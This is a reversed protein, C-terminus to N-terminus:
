HGSSAPKSKGSSMMQPMSPKPKPAGPKDVREYFVDIVIDSELVKEAMEKIRATTAVPDLEEGDPQMSAGYRFVDRMIADHLFPINADIREVHNNKAVVLRYAIYLYHKQRGDVVVPVVLLPMVASFQPLKRKEDSDQDAKKSEAPGHSPSSAVVLSPNPLIMTAVLVLITFFRLM